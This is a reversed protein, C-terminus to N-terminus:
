RRKSLPRRDLHPPSYYSGTSPDYLIPWASSRNPPILASPSPADHYLFPPAYHSRGWPNHRPRETPRETTTSRPNNLTIRSSDFMKRTPKGHRNDRGYYQATSLEVLSMMVIFAMLVNTKSFLM